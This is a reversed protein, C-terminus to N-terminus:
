CGMRALDESGIRREALFARSVYAATAVEGEPDTLEAGPIRVEAWDEVRRVVCVTDGRAVSGVVVGDLAPAARVNLSSALVLAYAVSVRDSASGVQAITPQVSFITLGAMAVTTVFPHCAVRFPDNM